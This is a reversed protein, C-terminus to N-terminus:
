ADSRERRRGSNTHRRDGTLAALQKRLARVKRQWALWPLRARDREACAEALQAKLASVVQRLQAPTPCAPRRWRSRPPDPATPM